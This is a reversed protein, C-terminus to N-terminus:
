RVRFFLLRLDHANAPRYNAVLQYDYYRPATVLKVGSDDTGGGAVLTDIYSRRVAIAVAAKTSIPMELYVGADLLSIDVYAGLRKPNLKKIRVDIIGGTARGYSSAFNGPQFDISELMGVPLVSRLGDFHYINPVTAGDVFIQTDEPAAGRVVVQGGFLPTRAVGPLNQIAVLPDGWTGPIKDIVQAPLVIRSVEKRPREATVTVDFPNYTGREVLYTVVTAEGARVEETTRFPYYGPAEVVVRWAGPTLDFFTFHGNGDTTAEFGQPGDPTDHFVTIMLGVM